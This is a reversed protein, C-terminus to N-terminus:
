RMSDGMFHTLCSITVLRWKRLDLLSCKYNPTRSRRLERTPPRSFPGRRKPPRWMLFRTFNTLLFVVFSLMLLKAIPMKWLLHLRTGNSRPHQWVRQKAFKNLKGFLSNRPYRALHGKERLVWSIVPQYSQETELWTSWM